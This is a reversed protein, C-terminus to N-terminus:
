GKLGTFAIGKILYRQAFAYIIIIPILSCVTGAMILGYESGYTSRFYTLGLQITKLNDDNLYIMPSLYDNWAFTFTFITLTALAPKSLPLIIRLYIQFENCGDIRAADSLEMPLGLMFQRLLFAGFVGFANTLILAWHSNYFGLSKIIVFQPIMLAHWPVMMTALYVVFLKDRGPFKLRSFAYAACSCTFLQVVTIIVSLKITNAYYTLFNIQTWVDSYNSWRLVKPIWSSDSFIETNYKLSASLMWIFPVVMIVLMILLFIFVLTNSVGKKARYITNNKVYSDNM